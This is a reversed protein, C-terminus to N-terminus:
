PAHGGVMGWTIDPDTSYHPFAALSLCISVCLRGHGIYMEGRGHRVRFYNYRADDVCGVYEYLKGAIWVNLRLYVSCFWGKNRCRKLITRTNVAPEKRNGGRANALAHSRSRKRTYEKAKMTRIPRYFLWNSTPPHAGVALRHMPYLSTVTIQPWM